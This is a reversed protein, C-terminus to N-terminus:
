ACMHDRPCTKLLGSQAPHLFWRSIQGLGRSVFFRSNTTERKVRRPCKLGCAPLLPGKRSCPPHASVLHSLSGLTIWRPAQPSPPKRLGLTRAKIAPQAPRQSKRLRPNPRGKVKATPLRPNNRAKLDQPGHPHSM